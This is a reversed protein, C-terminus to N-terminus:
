AKQSRNNRKWFALLKGKKPRQPADETESCDSDSHIPSHLHILKQLPLVMYTHDSYWDAKTRNSSNMMDEIALRHLHKHKGLMKIVDWSLGNVSIWRCQVWDPRPSDLFRSLSGNDYNYMRMDEQSFDVVTIDCQEHLGALSHPGLSGDSPASVDIGPEQGPQWDGGLREPKYTKATNSRGPQRFRVAGDPSTPSPPSKKDDLQAAPATTVPQAEIDIHTPRM